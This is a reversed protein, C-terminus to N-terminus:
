KPCFHGKGDKKGFASIATEAKKSSFRGGSSALKIAQEIHIRRARVLDEHNLNLVRITTEALTTKGKIHGNSTYIFQENVDKQHPSCIEEANDGKFVAGYSVDKPAGKIGQEPYCALMNSFSLAKEPFNKQSYFHGVHSSDMGIRRMTYACLYGQEILLAQKLDAKVDGPMDDYKQEFRGSNKVWNLFKQPCPLKQIYRMELNM